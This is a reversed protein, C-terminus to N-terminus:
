LSDIPYSLSLNHFRYWHIAPITMVIVKACTAFNAPTERVVAERTML